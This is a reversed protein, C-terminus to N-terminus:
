KNLYLEEILKKVEIWETEADFGAKDDFIVNTYFKKEFCGYEGNIVEPNGNVHHFNIDHSKFYELYEVIEHPHSCTYLILRIGPVKSLLQLTEKAHPYFDKPIVEATYNAYIMTDHIDVAYYVTDWKKSKAHAHANKIARTIM